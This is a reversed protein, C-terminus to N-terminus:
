HPRGSEGMLVKVIFPRDSDARAKEFDQNDLDNDGLAVPHHRQLIESARVVEAEGRPHVTIASKGQRVSQAFQDALDMEDDDAFLTRFYESLKQEPSDGPLAGAQGPERMSTLEVRDTPFGDSVLETRARDATAYDNFLAVLVAAM